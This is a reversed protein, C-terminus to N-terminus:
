AAKAHIQAKMEELHKKCIGHSQHPQPKEGREQQCWACVFETPATAVPRRASGAEEKALMLGLSRLISADNM